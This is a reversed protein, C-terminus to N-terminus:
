REPGRPLEGYRGLRRLLDARAAHFAHSGDLREALGDLEALASGPGVNTEAIAVHMRSCRSPSCDRRRARMRCCRACRAAAHKERRNSERRIRDVAERAATTTLWGGPNPPVGDVPWRLVAALFAEVSPDTM